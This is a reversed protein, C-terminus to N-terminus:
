WTFSNMFETIKSDFTTFIGSITTKSLTLFLAGIALAALILIAKAIYQEGAKKARLHPILKAKGKHYWKDAKEKVGKVKETLSEKVGKVGEVKNIAEVVYM